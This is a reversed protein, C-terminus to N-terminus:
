TYINCSFRNSIQSRINSCKVLLTSSTFSWKSCCTLSGGRWAWRGGMALLNIHSFPSFALTLTLQNKTCHSKWPLKLFIARHMYGHLWKKLHRQKKLFRFFNLICFYGCNINKFLHIENCASYELDWNTSNAEAKVKLRLM